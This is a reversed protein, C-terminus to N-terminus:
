TVDEYKVHVMSGNYYKIPSPWESQHILEYLLQARFEKVVVSVLCFAMM